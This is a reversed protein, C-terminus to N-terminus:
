PVIFMLAETSCLELPHWGCLNCHRLVPFTGMNSFLTESSSRPGWLLWFRWDQGLESNQTQDRPQSPRRSSSIAVRELIRAQFIGCVSSGPLSCGIPNCLTLCLQAVLGSGLSDFRMFLRQHTLLFLWQKCGEGESWVETKPGTLVYTM